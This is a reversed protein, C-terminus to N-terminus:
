FMQFGSAGKAGKAHGGVTSPTNFHIPGLILCHAFCEYCSTRPIRRAACAYSLCCHNAGTGSKRAPLPPLLMLQASVHPHPKVFKQWGEQTSQTIARRLCPTAVVTVPRAIFDCTPRHTCESVPSLTSGPEELQHCIGCDVLWVM